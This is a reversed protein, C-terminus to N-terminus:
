KEMQALLHGKSIQFDKVIELRKHRMEFLRQSAVLVDPSNKVGRSYESQTSKYYAQARKINEDANHVQDHLFNLENMENKIHAEVERKQINALAEASKAQYNYSAADRNSEFGSPLDITIRIGFAYEDRDISSTFDKERQNFQYYSAFADIKPWLNRKEKDAQMSNIESNLELDKYQFEFNQPKNQLMPEIDHEHALEENFELKENPEFNLIVLLLNINNKLQIETQDLERNLNVAEMDFELKDTNTAVGSRIRRLASGTNSNNIEIADKILQVKNRLYLIEWYISRANQLEMNLVQKAQVSQLESNTKRIDSEFSDRGGNYLNLTGEVGYTPQTRFRDLGTKFTEQSASLKASPFFSRLLVGEREKAAQIQFQSASVRSNKQEVLTKLNKSNVELAHTNFLICFSLVILKLLRLKWM